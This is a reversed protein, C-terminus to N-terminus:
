KYGDYEPDTDDELSPALIAGKWRPHNMDVPLGHGERLQKTNYVFAAKGERKLQKVREMYGAISLRSANEFFEMGEWESDETFVQWYYKYLRRNPNLSYDGSCFSIGDGTKALDTKIPLRM